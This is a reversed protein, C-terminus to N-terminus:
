PLGLARVLDSLGTASALASAMGNLPAAGGPSEGAHAVMGLVDYVSRRALEIHAARAQAPEASRADWLDVLWLRGGEDLSFRNADADALQVGAAACAALLLCLELAWERRERAPAAGLARALSRGPLAVALYPREADADAAVLRAVGPVLLDRWLGIRAAFAERDGPEGFRLRVASQSPLHFGRYWRDAAPLQESRKARGKPGGPGSPPDLAVPGLQPMSLSRLWHKARAAAEGEYVDAELLRRADAEAGGALFAAALSLAAQGRERADRFSLGQLLDVLGRRAPGDTAGLERGLEFLRRRQNEPLELLSAKSVCLLLAVGARTPAADAPSQSAGARLAAYAARLPLLMEAVKDPLGETSRDFAARFAASHLLSYVLVPLEALPFVDVVLGLIQRMQASSTEAFDIRKLAQALAAAAEPRSAADRVCELYRVVYPLEPAFRLIGALLREAEAAPLRETVALVRAREVKALLHRCVGRHTPERVGNLLLDEAANVRLKLLRRHDRLFKFHEKMRLLEAPTLPEDAAQDALPPKSEALVRAPAPPQM